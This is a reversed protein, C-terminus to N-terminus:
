VEHKQPPFFAQCAFILDLIQIFCQECYSPWLIITSRSPFRDATDLHSSHKSRPSTLSWDDVRQESVGSLYMKYLSAPSWLWPYAASFILSDVKLGVKRKAKASFTAFPHYYDLNIHLLWEVCLGWISIKKKWRDTLTDWHRFCFEISDCLTM